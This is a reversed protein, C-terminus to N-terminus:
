LEHIQSSQALHSTIPALCSVKSKKFNSYSYSSDMGWCSGPHSHLLRWPAFTSSFPGQQQVKDFKSSWSISSGASCEACCSKTDSKLSGSKKQSFCLPSRWLNWRCSTVEWGRPRLYCVQCHFANCWLPSFCMQFLFCFKRGAWNISIIHKNNLMRPDESHSTTSFHKLM